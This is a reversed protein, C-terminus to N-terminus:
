IGLFFLCTTTLATAAAIGKQCVYVYVENMGIARVDVTIRRRMGRQRGEKCEFGKGSFRRAAISADAASIWSSYM